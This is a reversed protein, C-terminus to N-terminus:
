YIKFTRSHMPNFDDTPGGDSDPHFVVVSLISKETQFYHAMQRSILFIDYKKIIKSKLKGDIMYVAKGEGEVVMGIRFSPHIHMTQKTRPTFYLQNVCPDGNRSPGIINLNSCGDIYSLRGVEKPDIEAFHTNGVFGPSEIQMLKKYRIIKYPSTISGSFFSLARHRTGNNMFIEVDNGILFHTGSPIYIKNEDFNNINILCRHHDKIELRKSTIKM